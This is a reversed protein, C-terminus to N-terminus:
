YRPISPDIRVSWDDIGGDVTAVDTYGYQSTLAAAAHASRMGHHCIVAIPADKPFSEVWAGATSLPCLVTGEIHATAYEHPERVDIVILGPQTERLTKLDYTTIHRYSM